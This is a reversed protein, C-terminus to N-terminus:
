KKAGKIMNGYAEATPICWWEQYKFRPVGNKDFGAPEFGKLLMGDETITVLEVKYMMLTNRTDQFSMAIKTREDVDLSGQMGKKTRYPYQTFIKFMM